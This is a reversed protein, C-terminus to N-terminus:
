SFDADEYDEYDRKKQKPKPGLTIIEGNYIMKQFKKKFLIKLLARTFPLLFILGIIDSLFGPLVLLIGGCLILFGDLMEETPLTGQDLSKQINKLTQFGQLRALYAGSIGIVILLALTNLAGIQAGVRIILVLELAPLIIFLIFLYIFM